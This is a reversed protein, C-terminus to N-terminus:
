LGALAKLIDLKSMGAVSEENTLDPEAPRTRMEEAKPAPAQRPRSSAPRRAAPGTATEPEPKTAPKPKPPLTGAGDAPNPRGRPKPPAADKSGPPSRRIGLRSAQLRCAAQTRGLLSSISALPEGKVYLGRLLDLQEPTWEAPASSEPLSRLRLEHLKGEIGKATRGLMRALEVITKSSALAKLRATEEETWARVTRCGVGLNQARCHVASLSRGLRRALAPGGDRVYRRRIVEDDEPTWATRLGGGLGLRVIRGKVSLISRGLKEAIQQVSMAPYSAELFATDEDTWHKITRGRRLGLVRARDKVASVTRGLGEAIRKLSETSIRERLYEDEDKTWRGSAPGSAKPEILALDLAFARNRVDRATRGLARALAPVDMVRACRRLQSDAFSSWPPSPQACANM